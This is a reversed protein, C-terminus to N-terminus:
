MSPSLSIISYIPTIVGKGKTFTLSFSTVRSRNSNPDFGPTFSQAFHSLVESCGFMMGAIQSYFQPPYEVQPAPIM